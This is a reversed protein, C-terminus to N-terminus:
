RLGFCGGKWSNGVLGGLCRASHSCHLQRNVISDVGLIRFRSTTAFGSTSSGCKYSGDRVAPPPAGGAGHDLAALRASRDDRSSASSREFLRPDERRVRCAARLGRQWRTAGGGQRGQWRYTRVAKGPQVVSRCAVAIIWFKCIKKHKKNSFLVRLRIPHTGRNDRGGELGTEHM